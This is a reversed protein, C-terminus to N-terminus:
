PQGIRPGDGRDTDVELPKNHTNWRKQDLKTGHLKSKALYETSKDLRLRATAFEKGNEIKIEVNEDIEIENERFIEVINGKTINVPLHQIILM